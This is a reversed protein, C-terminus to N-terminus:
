TYCPRELYNNLSKRILNVSTSNYVNSRNKNIKVFMSIHIVNLIVNDCFRIYTKSFFKKYIFM